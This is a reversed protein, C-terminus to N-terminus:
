MMSGKKHIIVIDIDVENPYKYNITDSLSKPVEGKIIDPIKESGHNSVRPVKNTTNLEEDNSYFDSYFYRVFDQINERNTVKEM